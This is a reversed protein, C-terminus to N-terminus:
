MIQHDLCDKAIMFHLHDPVVIIACAPRPIEAMAKKYYLPDITGEQPMFSISSHVGMDAILNDSKVKLDKSNNGNTGVFVTKGLVNKDRNWEIIAPM